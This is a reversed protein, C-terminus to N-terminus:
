TGPMPGSAAEHMDRTGEALADARVGQRIRELEERTFSAGGVSRTVHILGECGKLELTTPM